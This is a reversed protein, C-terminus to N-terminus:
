LKLTIEVAEDMLASLGPPIPEGHAVRLKTMTSNGEPGLVHHPDALESGRYFYVNIWERAVFIKVIARGHVSFFPNGWKVSEDVIDTRRLAQVVATATDRPWPAPLEALFIEVTASM